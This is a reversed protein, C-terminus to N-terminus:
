TMTQLAQYCEKGVDEGTRYRWRFSKQYSRRGMEQRLSPNEILTLIADALAQPNRPAVLIGNMENEVLEPIGGVGSAVITIGLCM